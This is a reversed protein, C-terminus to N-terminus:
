RPLRDWEYKPKWVVRGEAIADAVIAEHQKYQPTPVEIVGLIPVSRGDAVEFTNKFPYSRNIACLIGVVEGGAEEILTILKGTTSTNNVLEEGILIRAGKPIELDYRGLIMDDEKKEAFIHRCALIRSVEQSFKIGAWPAGVIMDPALKAESIKLAMQKGFHTLVAPWLDAKSFNYYTLGVWKESSGSESHYSATYGVVPTTPMGAEDLTATYYGDCNKLTALNDGQVILHTGDPHFGTPYKMM